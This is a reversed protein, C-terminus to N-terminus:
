SDYLELLQRAAEEQIDALDQPELLLAEPGLRLMLTKLEGTGWMQVTARRRGHGVDLHASPSYPDLVWDRSTPYEVVVEVVRDVDYISPSVDPPRRDSRTPLVGLLRRVPVTIPDGGSLRLEDNGRSSALVTMWENGSRYVSVVYFTAGTTVVTRDHGEMNVLVPSGADRARRLVEVIGPAEGEVVTIEGVKRRLKAMAARLHPSQAAEISAAAAAKTYLRAAEPADLAALRRWWARRVTLVDDELRIADLLDVIGEPTRFEVWELPELSERVDDPRERLRAAIEDITVSGQDAAARDEGFALAASM